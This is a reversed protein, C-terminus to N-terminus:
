ARYIVATASLRELHNSFDHFTELLERFAVLVEVCKALDTINVVVRLLWREVHM